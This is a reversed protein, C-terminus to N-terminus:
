GLEKRGHRLEAVEEGIREGEKVGPAEKDADNRTARIGKSRKEQQCHGGAAIGGAGPAVVGEVRREVVVDLRVVEGIKGRHADIVIRHVEGRVHEIGGAEGKAPRFYADNGLSGQKGAGRRREEIKRLDTGARRQDKMKLSCLAQRGAEASEEDAVLEGFLAAHIDPTDGIGRSGIRNEDALVERDAAIAGERGICRLRSRRRADFGSAGSEDIGDPAVVRQPGCGGDGAVEAVADDRRHAEKLDARLTKRGDTHRLVRDLSTGRDV